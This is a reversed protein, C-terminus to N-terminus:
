MRGSLAAPVGVISKDYLGKWKKDKGYSALHEDLTKDQWEIAPLERAAEAPNNVVRTFFAWREEDSMGLSGNGLEENLLKMVQILNRKRMRVARLFVEMIITVVTALAAM